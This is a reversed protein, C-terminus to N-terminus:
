NSVWRRTDFLPCSMRVAKLRNTLDQLKPRNIALSVAKEEYEKMSCFAFTFWFPISNLFSFTFPCSEDTNSLQLM